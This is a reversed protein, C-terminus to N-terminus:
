CFLFLLGFEVENTQPTIRTSKATNSNTDLTSLTLHNYNVHSYEVRVAVQPGLMQRLGLGWRFGNLDKSGNGLSVDSSSVKLNARAIGLRAYFLTSDQYTLGPILSLGYANNMKFTTTAFASHVYEDNKMKYRATSRNANLELALYSHQDPFRNGIGAFITGFGGTGSVQDNNKVNFNLFGNQVQSIQANKQFKAYDPGAGVGLYFERAFTNASLASLIIASCIMMRSM